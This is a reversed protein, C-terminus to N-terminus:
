VSTPTFVAQGLSWLTLSTLVVMLAALPLQRAPATSGGDEALAAHGAWAGVIHGGVVAALQISWLVAAPLFVTPEYFGLDVPLLNDGRLLPDNIAAIIRQGDVLLYSLYHAILYGVSVPLLGASLAATNLRRAVFLVIAVLTGLFAAAIITDLVIPLGFLNIGSFLDFYIQTQSLGDYIIAGTALVIIVLQDTSWGASLLGSGFPRRRVRGDEPEDVLAFPALRGLLGFWVSFVEVNRRWTARGFYSM